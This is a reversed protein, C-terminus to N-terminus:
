TPKSRRRRGNGGPTWHGHTGGCAKRARYRCRQARMHQHRRYPRKITDPLAHSNSVSSVWGTAHHQPTGGRFVARCLARASASRPFPSRACGYAATDVCPPAVRRRSKLLPMQRWARRAQRMAPLSCWALPGCRGVDLGAPCCKGPTAVRAQHPFPRVKLGPLCRVGTVDPNGALSLFRGITALEADLLDDQSFNETSLSLGPWRRSQTGVITIPPTSGRSGCARTDWGRACPLARRRSPVPPLSLAHCCCRSPLSLAACPGCPQM